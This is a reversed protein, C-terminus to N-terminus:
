AHSAAKAAEKLEAWRYLAAHWQAILSDRKHLLVRWETEVSARGNLSACEISLLRSYKDTRVRYKTKFALMAADHAALKTKLKVVVQHAEAERDVVPEPEVPEELVQQSKAFPWMM